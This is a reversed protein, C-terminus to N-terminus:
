LSGPEVDGPLQAVAEMVQEAVEGAFAEVGFFGCMGLLVYESLHQFAVALGSALCIGMQLDPAERVDAL